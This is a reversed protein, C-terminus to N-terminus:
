NAEPPELTCVPRGNRTIVFSYGKQLLKMIRRFRRRAQTVSLVPM